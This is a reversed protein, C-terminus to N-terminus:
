KKVIIQGKETIVIEKTIIKFDRGWKANKVFNEATEKSVYYEITYDRLEPGDWYCVAYVKM